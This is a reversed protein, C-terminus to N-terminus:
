WNRLELLRNYFEIIFVLMGQTKFRANLSILMRLLSKSTFSLAQNSAKM